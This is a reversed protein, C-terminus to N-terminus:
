CNRKVIKFIFIYSLLLVNLDSYFTVPRPKNGGKQSTVEFDTSFSHIQKMLHVGDDGPYVM